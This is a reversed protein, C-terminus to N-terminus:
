VLKWTITKEGLNADSLTMKVRDGLSFVKKTREGRICYKNKDLAYYDDGLDRIRLLGEAKTEIEAIYLGWEAVGSIIGNFEKGIMPRLYEIQKYRVSDREAEVAAVERESAHACRLDFVSLEKGTAFDGKLARKLLRHVMLDPYRRIPSTFHTYFQFALGFHGINKTSYIAKAMSRVAAVEILGQEPKGEIEKFLANIDSAEVVGDHNKDLEYGIAKLFNSLEEIRDPKPQDHIRYVFVAREQVKEASKTVFEAVKRNALLMLDEILLNTAQRAKIYVGLPRGNEDLKFKVEDTEFAISGKKFREDRLIEAIRNSAQLEALLPGESTDLVKQAEEYAFRHDSNIVTEGFWESKVKGNKDFIFITSTTLKDEHPNLSCLDNSLVEPLMPITRDVLYISTGRKEAEEDIADGPTVYASVDAIHVGIEIDGGELFAVSIADDFDKADAPDITFTTVGRMDRRLPIQSQIYADKGDRLAGAEKEVQEPFAAAFGQAIIIAQMETDHLGAPGIVQLVKGHPMESESEWGDFSVLAKMGPTAEKPLPPTVRIHVLMKRDDPVLFVKDGESQIVGVFQTKARAVVKEVKGQQRRGGPLLTLTVTDGHLATGTHEPAIEISEKFDPLPVYGVGKASMALVGTYEKLSTNKDSKHQKKMFIRMTANIWQKRAQAGM